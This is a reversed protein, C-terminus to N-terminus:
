EYVGSITLIENFNSKNQKLDKFFSKIAVEKAINRIRSLEFPYNYKVKEFNEIISNFQVRQSQDKPNQLRQLHIKEAQELHINWEEESVQLIEYDVLQNYVVWFIYIKLQGTKLYSEYTKEIQRFFRIRSNRQETETSQQAIAKPKAKQQQQKRKRYQRYANLISTLYKIDFSDYHEISIDIKGVMALEFAKIIEEFSFDHYYNLFYHIMRKQSSQDPITKLGLDAIVLAIAKGIGQQITEKETTKLLQRIPLNNEM